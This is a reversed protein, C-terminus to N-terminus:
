SEYLFLTQMLKTITMFMTVIMVMIVIKVTRSSSSFIEKYNMDKFTDYGVVALIAYNLSSQSIEHIEIKKNNLMNDIVSLMIQILFVFTFLLVKNTLSSNINDFETLLFISLFLLIIATILLRFIFLM